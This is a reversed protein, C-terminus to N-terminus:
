LVGVRRSATERDRAGHGGYEAMVGRQTNSLLDSASWRWYELLRVGIPQGATHFPEAGTKLSPHSRASNATM